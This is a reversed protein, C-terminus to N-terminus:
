IRGGLIGASLQSATLMIRRLLGAPHFRFISRNVDRHLLIQQVGGMWLPTTNVMTRYQILPPEEGVVAALRRVPLPVQQLSSQRYESSIFCLLDHVFWRVSFIVLCPM